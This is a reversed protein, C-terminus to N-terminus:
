QKMIDVILKGATFESQRSLVNGTLKRWLVQEYCIVSASKESQNSRPLANQTTQKYWRCAYPPQATTIPQHTPLRQCQLQKRIHTKTHTHTHTHWLFPHPQKFLPSFLAARESSTETDTCACLCADTSQPCRLTPYIKAPSVASMCIHDHLKRNASCANSRLILFYIGNRYRRWVNGLAAKINECTHTMYIDGPIPFHNFKARRRHTATQWVSTPYLWTNTHAGACSCANMGVAMHVSHLSTQAHVRTRSNCIRKVFIVKEALCRAKREPRRCDDTVARM